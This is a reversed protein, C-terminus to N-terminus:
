KRGTAIRVSGHDEKGNAAIFALVMRRVKDPWVLDPMEVVTRRCRRRLKVRFLREFSDEHAGVKSHDKRDSDKRM